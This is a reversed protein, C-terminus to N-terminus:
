FLENNVFSNGGTHSVGGTVKDHIVRPVYGVTGDEFHHLVFNDSDPPQWNPDVKRMLEEVRGADTGADGSVEWINYRNGEVHPRFDPWGDRYQISPVTTGDPLTKPRTFEFTGNGDVPQSGDPTTWRGNRGSKPM